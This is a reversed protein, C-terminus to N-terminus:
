GPTCGLIDVAHRSGLVTIRLLSRDIAVAGTDLPLLDAEASLVKGARSVDTESAWIQPNGPEIVVVEPTGASPMTIRASLRLGGDIPRLACTVAGVQAESRSYPRQAMAAVIAAHRPAAHDLDREFSLTSPVCVDKCVGIDVQGKLRVPKDAHTPTIEVPLVVQTDYGISRLGNQDFVHPTPWSITASGINRSGRWDFQPPIGADGPARWYTKWGQALTLRIGAQYTGRPTLGGDLVEIRVIDTGVAQSLAPLAPLCLSMAVLASFVRDM